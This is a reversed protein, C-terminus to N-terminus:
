GCESMKQPWNSFLPVAVHFTDFFFCFFEMVGDTTSLKAGLLYSAILNQFYNLNDYSGYPGACLKRPFGYSFIEKGTGTRGEWETLLYINNHLVRDLILNRNEWM